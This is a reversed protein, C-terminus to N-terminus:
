TTEVMAAGRRYCARLVVVILLITAAVLIISLWRRSPMGPPDSNLLQEYNTGDFEGRLVPRKWGGERIIYTENTVHNRVWTGPPYQLEFLEGSSPANVRYEAVNATVSDNLGGDPLFRVVKWTIPMWGVQLDANYEVEVAGVVRGRQLRKIAFRCM